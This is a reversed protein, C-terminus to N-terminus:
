VIFKGAFLGLIFAMVAILAVALRSIPQKLEEPREHAATEVVKQELMKDLRLSYHGIIEISSVMEGKYQIMREYFHIPESKDRDYFITPLPIEFHIFESDLEYSRGNVSFRLGEELYVTKSPRLSFSAKPKKKGTIDVNVISIARRRGGPLRTTIVAVVFRGKTAQAAAALEALTKARELRVRNQEAEAEAKKKTAEAEAELEQPTKKKNFVL